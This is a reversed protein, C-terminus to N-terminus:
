QKAWLSGRLYRCWRLKLGWRHAGIGLACLLSSFPAVLGFCCPTAIFRQPSVFLGRAVGRLIGSDDFSTDRQAGLQNARVYLSCLTIGQRAMQVLGGLFQSCREPDVGSVGDDCLTESL